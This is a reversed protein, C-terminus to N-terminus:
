NCDWTASSVTSQADRLSATCGPLQQSANPTSTVFSVPKSSPPLAEACSHLRPASWEVAKHGLSGLQLADQFGSPACPKLWEPFHLPIHPPPSLFTLETTCQKWCLQNPNLCFLQSNTKIVLIEGFGVEQEWGFGCVGGDGRLNSKGTRGQSKTLYRRELLKM